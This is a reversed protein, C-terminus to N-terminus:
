IVVYSPDARGPQLSAQALWCGSLLPCSKRHTSPISEHCPLLESTGPPLIPALAFSLYGAPFHITGCLPGLWWLCPLWSLPIRQDATSFCRGPLRQQSHYPVCHFSGKMDRCAGLLFCSPPLHHQHPTVSWSISSVLPSSGRLPQSAFLSCSLSLVPYSVAFFPFLLSKM